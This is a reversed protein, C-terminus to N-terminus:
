EAVSEDLGLDEGGKPALVGGRDAEPSLFLGYWRGGDIGLGGPGGRGGDPM